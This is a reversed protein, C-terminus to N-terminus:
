VSKKAALKLSQLTVETVVWGDTPYTMTLFDDGKTTRKIKKVLKEECLIIEGLLRESPACDMLYINFPSIQTRTGCKDTLNCHSRSCTVEGGLAETEENYTLFLRTM